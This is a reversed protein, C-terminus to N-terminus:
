HLGVPGCDIFLSHVPRHDGHRWRQVAHQPLDMKRTILRVNKYMEGLVWNSRSSLVDDSLWYFSTELLIKDTRFYQWSKVCSDFVNRPSCYTMGSNFVPSLQACVSLCVASLLSFLIDALKVGNVQRIYDVNQLPFVHASFFQCVLLFPSVPSNICIFPPYCSSILISHESNLQFGPCEMTYRCVLCAAPVAVQPPIFVEEEFCM